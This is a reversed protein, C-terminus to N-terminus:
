IKKISKIFSEYYKFLQDNGWNYYMSITIYERDKFLVYQVLKIDEWTITGLNYLTWYSPFGWLNIKNQKEIKISTVLDSLTINSKNMINNRIINMRTEITEDKVKKRNTSITINGYKFWKVTPLLTIAKDWFKKEERSYFNPIIFKMGSYTWSKWGKLESIDNFKINKLYFHSFDNNLLNSFNVNLWKWEYKFRYVEWNIYFIREFTIVNFFKNQDKAILKRYHEKEENTLNTQYKQFFKDDTAALLTENLSQTKVSNFVGWFGFIEYQENNNSNKQFYKHLYLWEKKDTNALKYVSDYSKDISNKYSSFLVNLVEKNKSFLYEFDALAVSDDKITSDSLMRLILNDNLLVLDGRKKWYLTAYEWKLKVSEKRGYEMKDNEFEELSQDINLSIDKANTVSLELNYKESEVLYKHKKRLIKGWSRIDFSVWRDDLNHTDYWSNYNYIKAQTVDLPPREEKFVIQFIFIALITLFMLVAGSIVSYMLMKKKNWIKSWM